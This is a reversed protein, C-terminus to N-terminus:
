EKLNQTSSPQMINHKSSFFSRGTAANQLPLRKQPISSISNSYYSDGFVSEHKSASKLMSNPLFEKFSVSDVKDIDRSIDYRTLSNATMGLDTRRGRLDVQSRGMVKKFPLHNYKRHEKLEM